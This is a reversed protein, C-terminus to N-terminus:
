DDELKALAKAGSDLVLDSLRTGISQVVVVEISPEIGCMPEVEIVMCILNESHKLVDWQL